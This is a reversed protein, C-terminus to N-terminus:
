GRASPPATSDRLTLSVPLVTRQQVAAGRILALLKRMAGDGLAEAPASVTTLQPLTVESLITGAFGVLSLQGPVDIGLDAAALRAGAALLDDDCFIATPRTPASLLARAAERAAGLTFACRAELAADPEAGAEALAKRWRRGRTSFTRLPIDTALHAIARHGLGLLHEMAAAAGADVDLTVSPVGRQEAEILVVPLGPQEDTPRPPRVSFLLLGDVGRDRLADMASLQFDREDGPEVLAVTYGEERAVQQAGRLVRGLFPNTVDPVFLGVAHTRGSRLARASPHPRYRLQAAARRVREQVETSARGSGKGSLVLSVTSQSVGALRAVDLSTVSPGNRSM